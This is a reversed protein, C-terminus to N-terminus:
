YLSSTESLIKYLEEAQQLALRFDDGYRENFQSTFDARIFNMTSEFNGLGSLKSIILRKLHFNGGFRIPMYWDTKWPAQGNVARDIDRLDEYKELLPFATETMFDTMLGVCKQVDLEDLMDPLYDTESPNNITNYSFFLFRSKRGEKPTIPIREQLQVLIESIRYNVKNFGYGIKYYPRYDLMRIGISDFGYKSKREIQAEMSKNLKISFGNDQLFPTIHKITLERAEIVSNMKLFKQLQTTISVQHGM